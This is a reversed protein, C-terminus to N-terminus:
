FGFVKFQMAHTHGALSLQIDTNNLVERRWHTPDHTMLIKFNENPVGHMAKKLDSHSPFPAQGANEVGILSIEASDKRLAINENMLLNWGMQKQLEVVRHQDKVQDKPNNYRQYLCYDHNGLVSYVGDRAEIKSLPEM